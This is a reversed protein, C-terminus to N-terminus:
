PSSSQENGVPSVAGVDGQCSPGAFLRQWRRALVRAQRTGPRLFVGLERHKGTGQTPGLSYYETLGSYSCLLEIERNPEDGSEWFLAYRTLAGVKAAVAEAPALAQRFFM